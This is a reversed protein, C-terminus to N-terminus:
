TTLTYNEKSDVIVKKLNLDDPPPLKQNSNEKM